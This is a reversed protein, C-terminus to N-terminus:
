SFPYIAPSSGENTIQVSVAAGPWPVNHFTASIEVSAGPAVTATWGPIAGCSTSMAGV